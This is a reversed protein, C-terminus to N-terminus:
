KAKASAIRNSLMTLFPARSLSHEEYDLLAGLEDVSLSRLRARLQALTLSGYDLYAAIEPEVVKPAAKAATAVNRRAPAKAPAKEAKAATKPPEANPPMSYLAFRGPTGTRETPAPAISEPEDEDFTAWEPKEEIEGFLPAFVQDGKIALSTLFQQFHMTTQLMQSFATMPLTVATSPFKRTEELIYVAAGAAVRALYPPRIMRM